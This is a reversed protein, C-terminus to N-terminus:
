KAATQPVAQKPTNQAGPYWAALQEAFLRRVVVDEDHWAEFFGPVGWGPPYAYREAEAPFGDVWFAPELPDIVEFNEPDFLIPEGDDALLRLSDCEIGLVEYERDITLSHRYDRGDAAIPKRLVVRM